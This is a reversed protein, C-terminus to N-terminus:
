TNTSIINSFGKAGEGVIILGRMTDYMVDFGGLITQLEGKIEKEEIYPLGWFLVAAVVSLVIILTLLTSIVESLAHNGIKMDKM